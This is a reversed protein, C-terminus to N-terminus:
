LKEGLGTYELLRYTDVWDNYDDILERSKAM